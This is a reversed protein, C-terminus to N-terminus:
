TREDRTRIGCIEFINRKFPDFKINCAHARMLQGLKIDTILTRRFQGLEHHAINFTSAAKVLRPCESPISNIMERERERERERESARERDRERDREKEREGIHSWPLTGNLSIRWIEYVSLDM